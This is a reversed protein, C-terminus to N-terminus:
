RLWGPGRGRELAAEYQAPSHVPIYSDVPYGQVDCGDEAMVNYVGSVYFEDYECQELYRAAYRTFLAKNAFLYVGCVADQSVLRGEATYAVRGDMDYLLYCNAPDTSYYCLLGGDPVREELAETLAPASFCHDCDNFLVPLDDDPLGKVGELCTLVAGSLVEPVTVIRAAPFYRLIDRDIGLREVHERLVVFTLSALPVTRAVSQAAWYFLPRGWLELLPKPYEYGGMSFRTGAGAMPMVLHVKRSM